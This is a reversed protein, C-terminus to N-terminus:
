SNTECCINVRVGLENENIFYKLENDFESPIEKNRFKILFFLGGKMRSFEINPGYINILKNQVIKVKKKYIEIKSKIEEKLNNNSLYDLVVYQNFLSTCM